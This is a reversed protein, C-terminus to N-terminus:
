GDPQALQHWCSMLDRAPHLSTAAPISSAVAPYSTRPVAQAPTSAVQPPASNGPALPPSFTGAIQSPHCTNWCCVSGHGTDASSSGKDRTAFAAGQWDLGSCDSRCPWHRGEEAPSSAAGASQTSEPQSVRQPTALTPLKRRIFTGLEPADYHPKTGPQLKAELVCQSGWEWHGGHLCGAGTALHGTNCIEGKLYPGWTGSTHRRMAHLHFRWHQHLGRHAHRQVEMGATQVAGTRPRQLLLKLAEVHKKNEELTVGKMEGANKGRVPTIEAPAEHLPAHGTSQPSLPEGDHYSRQAHGAHDADMSEQIKGVPASSSSLMEERSFGQYQKRKAKYIERERDLHGQDNLLVRIAQARHRVNIGQDRGDAASYQFKELDELRYMMEERALTVCQDSGRKLLFELVTLAKYVNRWKEPPYGLRLVLVAFIIECNTRDFSQEALDNLMTGTPGGPSMVLQKGRRESWPHSRIFSVM